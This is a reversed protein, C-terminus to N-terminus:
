KASFSYTGSGVELVERDRDRGVYKVGVADKVPKGGELIQAGARVPLRVIGRSNAPIQVDCSFVESERRWSVKVPGRPSEFSGSASDVGKGPTPQILVTDFGISDPAPAIGVLHQTFWEQIHGLMCHNMSSTPNANWAEPLSTWGSNVLYAYSGIKDRNLVNFIVDSHGSQSLANILFRYGVDGSTQQWERERLDDVIAQAAAAREAEPVMDFVLAMAHATQPSSTHAYQGPGTRFKDNFAKRIEAALGAYKRSDEPKGLVAASSSVIDACGAFVATATLDTPTFRSAGLKEGPWYDYWDGLGPAAIHNDSTKEMYDVFGRMMDYNTEIAAKDAYWQYLYWPIFVGAAGWEPTYHFGDSFVPYSPAVTLIQGDPLQSDRIDGSIKEGFAGMEYRSAVSAWMLWPVELWGLKERTPCDTFVHGFNSRVAWDIMKDIRNYMENSTQFTGVPEQDSHVHVSTLETVVPLNDPNPRGEPVGGTLELYQYGTYFLDCFWEEEPGEGRLTYTVWGHGIGSQNVPGKGNNIYPDQGDRQEAWTLKITQGAKGRVKLRPAASANQGFDYVYQGPKPEEVSVPELEQFTRMPPAFAATLQGEPKNTSGASQWASDDFGPTSWDEPLKQADYDVGGLIANHSLPGSTWRWSSDTVISTSSGDKFEIEAQLILALPRDFFAGHIRRDGATNYFGKGLMVGIANDGSRLKDTVDFTNYYVTKEYKSWPPDLFHDGVKSGNISLVYHGLGSVHILAKSVPKNSNFEKRFIPLVPHEGRSIKIWPNIGMRGFVHVAEWAPPETAAKVWEPHWDPGEPARSSEWSADSVLTFTEGSKLPVRLAAVFGASNATEGGNKVQVGLVNDEGPKMTSGPNIHKIHKWDHSSGIPRGNVYVDAQNDATFSLMAEDLLADKPLSFRKRLYRVANGAPKGDAAGPDKKDQSEPSWIWSAKEILNNPRDEIRETGIWAAKWDAPSLLATTWTAPASWASPQGNEDWSCVTWYVTQNSKLPKGKYKIQLTDSTERKQSDWLDAQGPELLEPTTAVLIQYGSQRSSRTDSAVQWGLRPAPKDIGVPNERFECQLNQVTLMAGGNSVAAIVGAVLIAHLRVRVRPSTFGM